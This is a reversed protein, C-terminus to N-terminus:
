SIQSFFMFIIILVVVFTVSKSDDAMTINAVSIGFSSDVLESYLSGWEFTSKVGFRRVIAMRM